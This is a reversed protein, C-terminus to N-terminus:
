RVQGLKAPGTAGHPMKTSGAAGFFRETQAVEPTPRRHSEGCRAPVLRSSRPERPATQLSDLLPAKGVDAPTAM